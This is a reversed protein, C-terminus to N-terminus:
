YVEEAVIVSANETTHRTGDEFTVEAEVRDIVAGPYSEAVRLMVDAVLRMDLPLHLTVIPRQGPRM